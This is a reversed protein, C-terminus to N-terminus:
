GRKRILAAGVTEAEEDDSVSIENHPASQIAESEQVAPVHSKQRNRLILKRKKAAQVEPSMAGVDASTASPCQSAGPSQVRHDTTLECVLNQAPSEKKGKKTMDGTKKMLQAYGSMIAASSFFLPLTLLMLLLSFSLSM